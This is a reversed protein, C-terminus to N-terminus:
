AARLKRVVKEWVDAHESVKTVDLTDLALGSIKSRENHCTVCYQDLLARQPSASTQAAQPPPPSAARLRTYPASGVWVGVMVLICLRRVM